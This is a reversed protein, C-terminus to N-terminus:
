SCTHREGGELPFADIQKLNFTAEETLPSIHLQTEMLKPLLSELGKLLFFHQNISQDTQDYTKKKNYWHWSKPLQLSSHRLFFSNSLFLFLSLPSHFLLFPSILNHSSTTKEITRSLVTFSPAPQLFFIYM